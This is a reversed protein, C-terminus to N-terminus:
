LFVLPQTPCLAALSFYEPVDHALVLELQIMVLRLFHVDETSFPTRLVRASLM